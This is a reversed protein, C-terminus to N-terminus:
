PHEGGENAGGAQQKCTRRQKASWVGHHLLDTATDTRQGGDGAEEHQSHGAEGAAMPTSDHIISSAHTAM